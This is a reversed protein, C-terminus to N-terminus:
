PKREDPAGPKTDGPKGRTSDALRPPAAGAEGDPGQNFRQLLQRGVRGVAESALWGAVELTAGPHRQAIQAPGRSEEPKRRQAAAFGAVGGIFGALMLTGAGARRRSGGAVEVVVLPSKGKGRKAKKKKAM